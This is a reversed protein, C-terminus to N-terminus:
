FISFHDQWVDQFSFILLLLYLHPSLYLLCLLFSSFSFSSCILILILTPLSLTFHCNFSFRICLLLLGNFILIEHFVVKWFISIFILILIVLFLLPYLCFIFSLQWLSFLEGRWDWLGGLLVGCIIRNGKIIELKWLEIIYIICDMNMM